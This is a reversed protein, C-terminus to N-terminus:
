LVEAQDNKAKRKEKLVDIHSKEVHFRLGLTLMGTKSFTGFSGEIGMRFIKFVLEFGGSLVFDTVPIIVGVDEGKKNQKESNSIQFVGDEFFSKASADLDTTDVLLEFKTLNYQINQIFKLNIFPQFIKIKKSMSITCHFDLNIITDSSFININKM